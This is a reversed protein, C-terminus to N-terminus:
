LSRAQRCTQHGPTSNRQSRRRAAEDQWWSRDSAKQSLRPMPDAGTRFSPGYLKKQAEVALENDRAARGRRSRDFGPAFSVPKPKVRALSMTTEDLSRAEFRRGPLLRMGDRKWDERASGTPRRRRGCRIAPLGPRAYCRSRSHGATIPTERVRDRAGPLKARHRYRGIGAPGRANFRMCRMAHDGSRAGGIRSILGAAVM